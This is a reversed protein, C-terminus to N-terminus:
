GVQRPMHGKERIQRILDDVEASPVLVLRPSVRAVIYQSLSTSAELERLTLDDDVELLAFGDYLRVEGYRSWWERLTRRFADPMPQPMTQEWELEFESLVNGLDFAAHAAHRDLQYVYKDDDVSRLCAIQGLFTPVSPDVAYPLVTITGSATDFTVTEAGALTSTATPSEWLLNRLGNARVAVPEGRGSCREIYGLWQLPGFLMTRLFGAQPPYREDHEGDRSQRPRLQLANSLMQAASSRHLQFFEPWVRLLAVELESLPCCRREGAMALFRLVMQRARALESRFQSYSTSFYPNYALVWQDNTRLLMDLESWQPMALYAQAAARTQQAPTRRSFRNVASPRPVLRSDHEEALDLELLLQLAFELKEPEVATLQALRHADADQLLTQPVQVIISRPSRGRRYGQTRQWKQIERSDFPWDKLLTAMQRGVDLHMRPRLLPPKRAIEQCIRNLLQTLSQADFGLRQHDADDTSAPCWAPLPPVKSQIEWPFLYTSARPFSDWPVLLGDSALDVLLGAAEVPKMYPGADGRLATIVRALDAPTIGHGDEIVFAARLAERLEDPLSIVARAVSTANSLLPALASAYEERDVAEVQCGRHSAIRRLDELRLQQLLERLGSKAESAKLADGELSLPQGKRLV